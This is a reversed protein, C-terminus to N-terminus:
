INLYIPTGSSNSAIAAEAVITNNLGDKPKVLPPRGNKLADLFASMEAMLPEKFERRPITTGKADDFRTEQTVFDLTIM